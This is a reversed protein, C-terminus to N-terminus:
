SETEPVQSNQKRSWYESYQSYITICLTVRFTTGQFTLRATTACVKLGLVTSASAPLDRHTQPWGQRWLLNWFLGTEFFYFIFYFLGL